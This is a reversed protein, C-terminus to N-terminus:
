LKPFGHAPTPSAASYAEQPKLLPLAPSLRHTPTGGRLDLDFGFRGGRRIEGGALALARFQDEENSREQPRQGLTGKTPAGGWSAIDKGTRFSWILERRPVWDSYIDLAQWLGGERSIYKYDTMALLDGGASAIPGIADLAVRQNEAAKAGTQTDWCAEDPLPKGQRLNAHCVLRGQDAFLFNGVFSNWTWRQKVEHKRSDVLEITTQWQGKTEASTGIALLDREPSTDIVGAPGDAKWSDALSCDPNLIRIETPDKPAPDELRSRWAIGM